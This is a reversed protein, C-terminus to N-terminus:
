VWEARGERFVLLRGQWVDAGAAEQPDFGALLVMLARAVGGHSVVISPLSVGALWRGIREHLMAYSEGGPPVFSWKDKARAKVAALDVARLEKWTHGEWAGFTLEQL